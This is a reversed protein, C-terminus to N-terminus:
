QRAEQLHHRLFAHAHHLTAAVTGVSVDLVLGIQEYSLDAYYRLFIAMRQREPLERVLAVLQSTGAEAFGAPSGAEAVLDRDDLSSARREIRARDRATNLVIRWLWAELTGERRFSARRRLALAFADQVADYAEDGDRLVAVATRL